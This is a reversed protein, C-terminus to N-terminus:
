KPLMSFVIHLPSHSAMLEYLAENRKVGPRSGVMQLLGVKELLRFHYYLSGPSRGMREAVDRICRVVEPHAAEGILLGKTEYALWAATGGLILGIIISAM